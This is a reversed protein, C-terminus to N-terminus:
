RKESFDLVSPTIVRRTKPNPPDIKQRGRDLETPKTWRVLKSKAVTLCDRVRNCFLDSKPLVLLVIKQWRVSMTEVNFSIKVSQYFFM